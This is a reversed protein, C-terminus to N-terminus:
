YDKNAINIGKQFKNLKRPEIIQSSTPSPQQIDKSGYSSDENLALMDQDQVQNIDNNNHSAMSQDEIDEHQPIFPKNDHVNYM